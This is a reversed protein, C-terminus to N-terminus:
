MTCKTGIVWMLLSIESPIWSSATLVAATAGGATILSVTSSHIYHVQQHHAPTFKLPAAHSMHGKWFEKHSCFCTVRLCELLDTEEFLVCLLLRLGRAGVSPVLSVRCLISFYNTGTYGHKSQSSTLHNTILGSHRLTESCWIEIWKKRSGQPHNKHNGTCLHLEPFHKSKLSCYQLYLLHM